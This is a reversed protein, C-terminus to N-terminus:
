NWKKILDNIGDQIGEYFKEEKFKPIIISDITEKLIEDTLIKQTGKGSSIRIQRDETSMVIILGNDKEALGIGWYNGLDTTYHMIDTYPDINDITLIAIQNTTENSYNKLQNELIEREEPTFVFSYDNVFGVPKPLIQEANAISYVIQIANTPTSNSCGVLYFILIIQFSIILVFRMM